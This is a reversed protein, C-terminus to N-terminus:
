GKKQEDSMVGMSVKVSEVGDLDAVAKHVDASITNRLPCGATTLLVEVSVTGGDIAVRDPSVMTLDTIPRHIEPDIVTSLADMVREITVSM